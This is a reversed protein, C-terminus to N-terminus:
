SIFNKTWSTSNHWHSAELNHRMEPDITQKQWGEIRPFEVLYSTNFNDPTDGVIFNTQRM